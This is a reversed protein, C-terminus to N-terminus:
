FMELQIGRAMNERHQMEREWRKLDQVFGRSANKVYQDTTNLFIHHFHVLFAQVQALNLNGKDVSNWQARLTLFQTKTIDFPM